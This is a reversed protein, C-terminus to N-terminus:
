YIYKNIDIIIIVFAYVETLQVVHGFVVLLHREVLSEAAAELIPMRPFTSAQRIQCPTGMFIAM